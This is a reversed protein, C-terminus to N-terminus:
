RILDIKNQIKFICLSKFSDKIIVEASKVLPLEELEYFDKTKLVEEIYFFSEQRSNCLKLIELINLGPKFDVDILESPMLGPDFPSGWSLVLLVM